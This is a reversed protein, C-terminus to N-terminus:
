AAGGEPVANTKVTRLIAVIYAVDAEPFVSDPGTPASDTFPSEYLRAPDMVGNATLEDVILNIFRIQNVGFKTDDLYTGFAEIAAQRDLGVLSRIFLGLGHAHEKAHAIDGEDGVGSDLLMAELATLDDATLPRNRRLRQLAVHDVHQKLYAGAKARFREWNTGPTAGPLEVLM